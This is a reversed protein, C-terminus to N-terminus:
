MLDYVSEELYLWHYYEVETDTMNKVTKENLSALECLDHELESRLVQSM